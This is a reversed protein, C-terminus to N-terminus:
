KTVFQDICNTQKKSVIIKKFLVIYVDKAFSGSQTPSELSPHKNLEM